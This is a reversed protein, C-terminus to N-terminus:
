IGSNAALISPHRIICVASAPVALALLEQVAGEAALALMLYTFEDRTWRHEHAVFADFQAVVDDAFLDLFLLICRVRALLKRRRAFNELDEVLVHDSLGVGLLDQRHRHVVM